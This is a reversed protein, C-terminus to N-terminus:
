KSYANNAQTKRSLEYRYDITFGEMLILSDVDIKRIYIQTNNRWSSKIRLDTNCAKMLVSDSDITDPLVEFLTASYESDFMMFYTKQNGNRVIEIKNSDVLINVSDYRIILKRDILTDRSIMYILKNKAEASDIEGTITDNVYEEKIAFGNWLGQMREITLKSNELSKEYEWNITQQTPFVFIKILIVILTIASLYLSRIKIGTNRIVILRLFLALFDYTVIMDAPSGAYGVAYGGKLILLRIIWFILEITHMSIKILPKSSIRAFFTFILATSSFIINFKNFITQHTIICGWRDNYDLNFFFGFIIWAILIIVMLNYDNVRHYLGKGIKGKSKLM